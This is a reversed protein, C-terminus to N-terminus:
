LDQMALTPLTPQQSERQESTTLSESSRKQAPVEFSIGTSPKSEFAVTTITRGEKGVITIPKTALTLQQLINEGFPLSGRRVIPNVMVSPNYRGHFIWLAELLATKGVGNKGSIINVQRFPGTTTDQFCRYNRISLETIM